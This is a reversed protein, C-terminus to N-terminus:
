LVLFVTVEAPPVLEIIVNMLGWFSTGQLFHLQHPYKIQRKLFKSQMKLLPEQEHIPALSGLNEPQCQALSITLSVYIYSNLGNQLGYIEPRTNHSSRGARRM